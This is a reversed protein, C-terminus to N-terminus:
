AADSGMLDFLSKPGDISLCHPSFWLMERAANERGPGDGQNGFGGNAKWPLASWDAPFEHEGSYGAFAIRLLPNTGNAIAWKWAEKAVSLDDCAYLGEHRDADTGYPPDLFVATLGHRVTVSEGLVRSWDGCAVRVDRLRESLGKMWELIYIGRGGNGFHPLQRNIGRGGNGFHPLKRNIGQGADSLHPRKRNIGRGADGFHPLKRNIGVGGDGFHPLQRNICQWSNDLWQWPGEGSCWGSGIWACAGWMWWGAVEADYGLPDGQLKSLREAGKTLLWWHRAALDTENVPWDAHKAVAEPEAQVARWFNALFADKDNITETKPAHPRSLLVALSGAFARCLKTHQRAPVLGSRRDAGQRRVLSLARAIAGRHRAARLLENQQV